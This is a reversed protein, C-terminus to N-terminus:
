KVILLRILYLLLFHGPYFAYFLYKYGKGKKGNYLVLPIVSLAGFIYHGVNRTAVQFVLIIANKVLHPYDRFHYFLLILLVPYFFYDTRLLLTFMVGTFLAALNGLILGTYDNKKEVIRDRIFLAIICIAFTFMINQHNWNLRGYVFLDFPLESILAFILMRKLYNMKDHTYYYGESIMFSFLPMAIRGVAKMWIRNPFFDGVHDILMCVMAILKLQTADLIRYKETNNM